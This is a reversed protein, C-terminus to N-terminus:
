WGDGTAKLEWHLRHREGRNSVDRCEQESPRRPHSPALTTSRAIQGRGIAIPHSTSRFTLLVAQQMATCPADVSARKDICGLMRYSPPARRVSLCRRDRYHVAHFPLIVEETPAHHMSSRVASAWSEFRGGCQRHSPEGETAVDRCQLPSLFFFAQRMSCQCVSARGSDIRGSIVNPPQFFPLLAARQM